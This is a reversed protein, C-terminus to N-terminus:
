DQRYCKDCFYYRYAQLIESSKKRNSNRTLERGDVEDIFTLRPLNVFNGIDDIDICDLEEQVMVVKDSPNGEKDIFIPNEKFISNSRRM